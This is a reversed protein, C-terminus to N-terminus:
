LSSNIDDWPGLPEPQKKDLKNERDNMSSKDEIENVKESM